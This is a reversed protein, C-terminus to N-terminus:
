EFYVASTISGHCATGKQLGADDVDLVDRRIVGPQRHLRELAAIAVRQAVREAPRKEGRQRAVRRGLDLDAAHQVLIRGDVAHLLVYHVQQQVQLADHQLHVVALLRQEGELFGALPDDSGAIDLRHVVHFDDIGIVDDGVEGGAALEVHLDLDHLPAAIDRGGGALGIGLLPAADAADQEVGREARHAAHAVRDLRRADLLAGVKVLEHDVDLGVARDIGLFRHAVGRADEDLM